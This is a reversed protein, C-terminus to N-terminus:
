SVETEDLAEGVVFEPFNVDDCDSCSEDPSPYKEVYGNADTVNIQYYYTGLPIQTDTTSFVFTGAGDTLTINQTLTYVEGPKGVYIDASLATADGTDIPLTLTEGYRIFISDL